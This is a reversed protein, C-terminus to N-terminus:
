IAFFSRKAYFTSPRVDANLPRKDHLRFGFCLDMGFGIVGLVIGVTFVARATPGIPSTNLALLSM